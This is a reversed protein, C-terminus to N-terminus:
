QQVSSVVQIKAPKNFGIGSDTKYYKFSLDFKAKEGERPNINQSNGSCTIELLDGTQINQIKSATCNAYNDEKTIRMSSDNVLNITIGQNNRLMIKQSETNLQYNECNFGPPAICRDAVSTQPNLVGFYALAGIMVLIILFAWGYTTLFEMAAQARKNM